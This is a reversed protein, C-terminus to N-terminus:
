RTKTVWICRRLTIVSSINFTTEPQGDLAIVHKQKRRFLEASQTCSYLIDADPHATHWHRTDPRIPVHMYDIQFVKHATLPCFSSSNLWYCRLPWSLFYFLIYNILGNLWFIFNSQLYMKLFFLRFFSFSIEAKPPPRLPCCPDPRLACLNVLTVCCKM